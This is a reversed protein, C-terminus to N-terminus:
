TTSKTIFVWTKEIDIGFCFNIGSYLISEFKNCDVFECKQMKRKGEWSGIFIEINCFVNKKLKVVKTWWILFNFLLVFCSHNETLIKSPIILDYGDYDDDSLGITESKQSEESM